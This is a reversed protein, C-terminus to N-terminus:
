KNMINTDAATPFHDSSHIELCFIDTAAALLIELEIPNMPGARPNSPSDKEPHLVAKAQKFRNMAM